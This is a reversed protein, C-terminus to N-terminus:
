AHPPRLLENPFSKKYASLIIPQPYAAPELRFVPLPNPMELVFLPLHDPHNSIISSRDNAAPAKHMQKYPCHSCSSSAFVASKGAYGHMCTNQILLAFALVVIILPSRHQM